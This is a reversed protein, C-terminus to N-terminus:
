PGHGEAPEWVRVALLGGAPFEEGARSDYGARADVELELRPRFAEDYVVLGPGAAARALVVRRGATLYDLGFRRALRAFGFQALLAAVSGPVTRLFVFDPSARRADALSVSGPREAGGVAELPVGTVALGEQWRRLAEGDPLGPDRALYHLREVAVARSFAECAVLLTGDPEGPAKAAGFPRDLFLAMGLERREDPHELDALSQRLVEAGRAGLRAPLPDGEFLRRRRRAPQLIQEEPVRPHSPPLVRNNEGPSTPLDPVPHGEYLRRVLWGQRLARRRRKANGEATTRGEDNFLDPRREVFGLYARLGADLLLADPYNAGRYHFTTLDYATLHRGAQRLLQGLFDVVAGTGLPTELAHVFDLVKDVFDTWPSLSVENFVLRLLGLVD